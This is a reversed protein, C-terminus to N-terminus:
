PKLSKTMNLLSWGFLLLFAKGNLNQVKQKLVNRMANRILLELFYVMKSIYTPKKLIKKKRQTLINLMKFFLLLILLELINKDYFAIIIWIITPNWLYFIFELIM